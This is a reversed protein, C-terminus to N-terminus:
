VSDPLIEPTSEKKNSCIKVSVTASLAELRKKDKANNENSIEKERNVKLRKTREEKHSVLSRKRKYITMGENEDEYEGGTLTAVCCSSYPGQLSFGADKTNKLRNEVYRAGLPGLYRSFPPRKLFQRPCISLGM